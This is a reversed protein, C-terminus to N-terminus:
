RIKNIIVFSFNAGAIDHRFTVSNIDFDTKDWVEQIHKMYDVARSGISKLIISFSEAFQMQNESLFDRMNTYSSIFKSSLEFLKPSNYDYFNRSKTSKTEEDYGRVSWLQLCITMMCMMLLYPLKDSKVFKLLTNYCFDIMKKKEKLIVKNDKIYKAIVKNTEKIDDARKEKFLKVEEMFILDEEKTDYTTNNEEELLLEIDKQQHLVIDDYLKQLQLECNNIKEQIINFQVDHGYDRCEPVVFNDRYEMRGGYAAMYANYCKMLYNIKEKASPLTYVKDFNLRDAIKCLKKYKIYVKYGTKNHVLCLMKDFNPTVNPCRTNNRLPFSCQHQDM